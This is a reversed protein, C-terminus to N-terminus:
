SDGGQPSSSYWGDTQRREHILTWAAGAYVKVKPHSGLLEPDDMNGEERIVVNLQDCNECNAILEPIAQKAQQFTDFQLYLYKNNKEKKNM